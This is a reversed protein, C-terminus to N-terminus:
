AWSSCITKPARLALMTFEPDAHSILYAGLSSDFIFGCQSVAPEARVVFATESSLTPFSLIAYEVDSNHDLRPAYEM